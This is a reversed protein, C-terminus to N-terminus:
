DFSAFFLVQGVELQDPDNIHHGGRGNEVM